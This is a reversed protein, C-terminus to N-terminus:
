PSFEKPTSFSEVIRAATFKTLVGKGGGYIKVVRCVSPHKSFSAQALKAEANRFFHESEMTLGVSVLRAFQALLFQIFFRLYLFVLFYGGDIM